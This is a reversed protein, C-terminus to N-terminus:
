ARLSAVYQAHDHAFACPERHDSQGDANGYGEGDRPKQRTEKESDAGRVWDGERAHSRKKRHDCQESGIDGRAAGHAEIGIGCQAVFLEDSKSGYRVVTRARLAQDTTSRSIPL